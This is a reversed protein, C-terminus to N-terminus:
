LLKLGPFRDAFVSATNEESIMMDMDALNCQICSSTKDFKSSDCLFVKQKAHKLMANRINTEERGVDSIVGDSSLAITSFFAFDACTEEFIRHADVGTTCLRSEMNLFGGSLYIRFRTQSLLLAIELNNTVVTLGRKKMLAEALYYCTSSQDLFVTCDNPIISAAKRAIDRKAATNLFMRNSFPRARNLVKRLEAGGHTRNILEKHALESLSRRVTAESLYLKKCLEHVSTPGNQELIELIQTDRQTTKTTANIQKAM